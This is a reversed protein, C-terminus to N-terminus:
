KSPEQAGDQGVPALRQAAQLVNDIHALADDLLILEHRTPSRLSSRTDLIRRRALGASLQIQAVLAAPPFEPAAPAQTKNSTEALWRLDLKNM